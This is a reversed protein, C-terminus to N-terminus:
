GDVLRKLLNWVEKPNEEPSFHGANRIVQGSVNTLGAKKFGEVYAKFDGGEGEGRLYLLPTDVSLGGAIAAKNEKADQGFARYWGFGTALAERTGYARAYQERASDTIQQPNKSIAGYFYDFYPRQRGQVLTEPLDPISHFRFHWIYPNREVQDWPDVGPVVVNMIVAAALEKPYRVLYSFTVQGGVDHGVVTLGSLEMTSVLSHISDAIAAKSLPPNVASSGGIGPMDVAVVHISEPIFRMLPGWASNDQPWGHLLLLTKPSGVGQEVIHFEVPGITVQRHQV